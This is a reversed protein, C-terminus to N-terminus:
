DDTEEDEFVYSMPNLGCLTAGFINYLMLVVGEDESMLTIDEPGLTGCVKSSKGEIEGFNIYKGLAEVLLAEEVIFLGELRSYRGKWNFKFLKKM